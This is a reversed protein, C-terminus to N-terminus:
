AARALSELDSAHSLLKRFDLVTVLNGGRRGVGAICHSWASGIKPADELRDDDLAAVEFVRDARIGICLGDFRMVVIRTFDTDESPEMGLTRRLDIVPVTQGRLDIMGLVNAPAQALMAIPQMDLIAEVHDVPTAFIEGAVGLTVHPSLATM